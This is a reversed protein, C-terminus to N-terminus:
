DKILEDLEKQGDVIGLEIDFHKQAGPEIFKLTGQERATKRSIPSSNCPEM